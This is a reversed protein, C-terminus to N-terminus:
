DAALWRDCVTNRPIFQIFNPNTLYGGRDFTKNRNSSKM